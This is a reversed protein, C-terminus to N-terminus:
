LFTVEFVSYLCCQGKWREEAAQTHCVMDTQRRRGRREMWKKEKFKAFKHTFRSFTDILSYYIYANRQLNM